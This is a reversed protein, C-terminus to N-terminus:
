AAAGPERVLGAGATDWEVSFDEPSRFPGGRQPVSGGCDPCWRWAEDVLAGCGGCHMQNEGDEGPM